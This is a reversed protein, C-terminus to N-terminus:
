RKGRANQSIFMECGALEAAVKKIGELNEGTYGFKAAPEGVMKMIVAHTAPDLVGAKTCECVINKFAKEMPTRDFHGNGPPTVKWLELFKEIAFPFLGSKMTEFVPDAERPSRFTQTPNVKPHDITLGTVRPSDFRRDQDPTPVKLEFNDESDKLRYQHVGSRSMELQAKGLDFEEIRDQYVRYAKKLRNPMKEPSVWHHAGFTRNDQMMQGGNEIADSCKYVQAMPNGTTGSKAEGSVPYDAGGTATKDASASLAFGIGMVISFLRIM